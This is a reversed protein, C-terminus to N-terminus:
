KQNLSASALIMKDIIAKAESWQGIAIEVYDGDKGYIRMHNQSPVGIEIKFSPTLEVAIKTM